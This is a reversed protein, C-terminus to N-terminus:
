ALSPDYSDSAPLGTVSVGGPFAMVMPAAPSFGDATNWAAPDTAVDDTNKPLTGDPIALRRGTATTEDAVEFVASPWPTMCHNIGLPNCQASLPISTDNSCGALALAAFLCCAAATTPRRALTLATAQPARM